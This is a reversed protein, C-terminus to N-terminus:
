KFSGTGLKLCTVTFFVFLRSGLEMKKLQFIPGTNITRMCKIFCKFPETYASYKVCYIAIGFSSLFMM